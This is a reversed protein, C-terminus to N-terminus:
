MLKVNLPLLKFSFMLVNAKESHNHQRVFVIIESLASGRLVDEGLQQYQRLTFQTILLYQSFFMLNVTKEKETQLLGLGLPDKLFVSRECHSDLNSIALTTETQYLQSNKKRKTLCM